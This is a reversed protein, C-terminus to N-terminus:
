HSEKEHFETHDADPVPQRDWWFLFAVVGSCILLGALTSPWRDALYAWYDAGPNAASFDRFAQIKEWVFYAFFGLSFLFRAVDKLSRSKM